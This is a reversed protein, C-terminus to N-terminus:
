GAPLLLWSAVFFGIFVAAPFKLDYKDRQPNDFFKTRMASAIIMAIVAIILAQVVPPAIALGLSVVFAIFFALISWGAWEHAYRTRPNDFFKIHIVATVIAAIFGVALAMHIYSWLEAPIPEGHLAILAGLNGGINGIVGIDGFFTGALLLADTATAFGIMAIITDGSPQISPHSRVKQM